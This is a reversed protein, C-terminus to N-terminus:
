KRNRWRGAIVLIGSMLALTIPIGASLSGVGSSRALLVSVAYVSSVCVLVLFFQLIKRRISSLFWVWRTKTEPQRSLGVGSGSAEVYSGGTFEGSDLDLEFSKYDDNLWSYAYGRVVRGEHTLDRMGDWSVRGSKWVVGDRNRAAFGIGDAFVILRRDPLELAWDITEGFQETVKRASVDVVYARGGAVVVPRDTGFTDFVVNYSTAGPQFNGVWTQGDHGEFEVVVGERHAGIGNSPFPEAAPGYAPLGPLIRVTATSM